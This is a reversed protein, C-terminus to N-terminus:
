PARQNPLRKQAATAIRLLFTLALAEALDPRLRTQRTADNLSRWAREVADLPWLRAQRLLTDQQKFFVPPRLQKVAVAPPTGQSAAVALTHLRQLASGFLVMLPAVSTEAAQAREFADATAKVHGLLAADIVDFVESTEQDSLVADVDAEGIPAGPGAYLSLKEIEPAILAMAGDGLASIRSVADEDVSHGLAQFRDRISQSLDRTTEGYCAVAGLYPASEFLEALKHSKKLDPAQVVLYNADLPKAVLQQLAAQAKPPCSSLWVISKTGFLSPTTLEAELRGSDGLDGDSLRITEGAGRERFGGAIGGAVSAIQLADTGYVLFGTLKGQPASAKAQAATPAIAVM